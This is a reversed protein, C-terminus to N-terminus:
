CTLHFAGAAHQGEEDLRNYTRVAKATKEIVTEIGASTLAEWTEEPVIMHGFAGTGIVLLDPGTAFVDDLDGELLTHGHRRRWKPRAGDPLLILDDTYTKGDVVIRGFDYADVHM